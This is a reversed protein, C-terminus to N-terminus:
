SYIKTCKTYFIFSCTLCISSMPGTLYVCVCLSVSAYACVSICMWVCGSVKNHTVCLGQYFVSGACVCVSGCGCLDMCQVCVSVYGCRIYFSYMYMSMLM